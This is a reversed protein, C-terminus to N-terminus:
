RTEREDKSTKRQQVQFDTAVYDDSSLIVEGRWYMARVFQEAEEPNEAKVSVQRSLTETIEVTYDRM